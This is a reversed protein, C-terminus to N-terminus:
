SVANVVIPKACKTRDTGSKDGFRDLGEWYKVDVILADVLLKLPLKLSNM